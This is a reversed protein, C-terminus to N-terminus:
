RATYRLVVNGSPYAKASALALPRKTTMKGFLLPGGGLLVPTVVLQYDDILNADALASAISASGFIILNGRGPLAKQEAIVAPTFDRILRAGRWTVAELTRSFVIKECSNLMDAMAKMQPLKRGPVHPDADSTVHPWFREFMQYTKRGFLVTDTSPIEAAGERDIADDPVVWDLSGDRDSLEGGASVRDFLVLRRSM